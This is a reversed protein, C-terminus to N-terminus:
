RDGRSVFCFGLRQRKRGCGEIMSENMSETEYKPVSFARSALKSKEFHNSLIIEYESDERYSQNRLTEGESIWKVTITEDKRSFDNNSFLNFIYSVKMTELNCDM